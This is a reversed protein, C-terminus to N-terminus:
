ILHMHSVKSMNCEMHSNFSFKTLLLLLLYYFANVVWKFANVWTPEHLTTYITYYYTTWIKLAKFYARWTEMYGKREIGYYIM